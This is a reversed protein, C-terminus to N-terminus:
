WVVGRAQVPNELVLILLVIQYMKIKSVSRVVSGDSGAIHSSVVCRVLKGSCNQVLHLSTTLHFFKYVPRISPVPNYKLHMALVM